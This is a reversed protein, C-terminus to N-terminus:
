KESMVFDLTARAGKDYLMNVLLELEKVFREDKGLDGFIDTLELLAKPDRTKKTV